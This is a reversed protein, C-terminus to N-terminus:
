GGLGLLTPEMVADDSSVPAAASSSTSEATSGASAPSASSNLCLLKSIGCLEDELNLDLFVHLNAYDGKVADLTKGLPFPFTGAIRLAKPLDSGAATLQELAPSLNRLADTLESQTSQIVGSAVGGLHSLSTLLTVLKTRDDKLIQLAKPLTDLTEEITKTQAKLTASLTNIRDLATLIDSKQLDLQGVFTNLQTLLDRVAGTNGQLAKNLETTIVKIQQLGGGNLLLSLSGLVEEVEPASGTRTLPITSNNKLDTTAPTDLPQELAVYKEGLLTTQQIEARANTPLHVDGRVSVTVKALWGSLTPAGCDDKPTTLAVKEVRGIAVDNVKVASQPVLDLVNTFCINIDYPHSGLNAGGPLSVGYLGHFGCGSLLLSAAAALAAFKTRRM